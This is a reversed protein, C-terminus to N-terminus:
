KVTLNDIDVQGVSLRSNAVEIAPFGTPFTDSETEFYKVGDVYARIAQGEATIRLDYWRETDVQLTSQSDITQLTCTAPDVASLRYTDLNPDLILAYGSCNNSRRVWLAVSGSTVLVRMSVDYDTKDPELQMTLFGSETLGTETVYLHLVNNEADPAAVLKDMQFLSPLETMDGFDDSFIGGSCAALLLLLSLNMIRKIV